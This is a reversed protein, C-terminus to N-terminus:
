ALEAVEISMIGESVFRLRATVREVDDRGSAAVIVFAGRRDAWLFLHLCCPSRARDAVLLHLPRM